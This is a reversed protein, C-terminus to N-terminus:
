FQGTAAVAAAITPSLLILAFNALCAILSMLMVAIDLQSSRGVETTQLSISNVRTPM